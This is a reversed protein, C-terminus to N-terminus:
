AHTSQPRDRHHAGRARLKAALAQTVIGTGAATELLDGETM